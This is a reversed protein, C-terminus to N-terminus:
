WSSRYRRKWTTIRMQLSSYLNRHKFCNNKFAKRLRSKILSNKERSRHNEHNSKNSNALTAQLSFRPHWDQTTQIRCLPTLSRKVKEKWWSLISRGWARKMQHDEQTTQAVLNERKKIQQDTQTSYCNLKAAVATSRATRKIASQKPWRRECNIM